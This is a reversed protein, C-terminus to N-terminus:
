RDWRWCCFAPPMDPDYVSLILDGPYPDKAGVFQLRPRIAFVRAVGFVARDFWATSVAAPTLLLIRRGEGTSAKCKAAWTGANSFTPNLWLNGRLQTWDQALSDVDPGYYADVVHNDAHAALDFDITGFRKEVARLFEPPTGYDQKSRGPKQAPRLSM